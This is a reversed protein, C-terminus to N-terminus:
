DLVHWQQGAPSYVLWGEGPLEALSWGQRLLWAAALADAQQNPYSCRKPSSSRLRYYLSSQDLTCCVLQEALRAEYDLTALALEPSGIWHRGL